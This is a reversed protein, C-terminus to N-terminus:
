SEVNAEQPALPLAGNTPTARKTSVAALTKQLREIDIPKTLHEDFGAQLCREVDEAMGYGTLAVAPTQCIQRAAKIFDIGTGDPLGIDSLLIDFESQKLMECATAVTACTEVEHGMQRLVNRMVQATDEHDEILLLRLGIRQERTSIETDADAAGQVPSDSTPLSVVFTSGQGPGKSEAHLTGGHAEVLAKAISLGLGLGRQKRDSAFDGQEFRQYLRAMVEEAMGAGDDRVSITLDTRHPNATAIEISGGPSTFKVANGIINLLIQQLRAPDAEVHSSKAELRSTLRLGKAQIEDRFLAAASQILGHADLLEKELSLKENEIRTIDLLDDILRAELEVNRRVRQLDPRLHPPLENAAEWASLTALVPTLPTRLEHSLTALFKDKAQSSAEVEAKAQILTREFTKHATFDRFILVVGRVTGDSERIPAGSDDIPLRSGDKRILLTHNALGAIAGSALVKDVPSEVPGGTEENVIRFVEACPRDEAEEATWGTLKEAVENLYTIRGRIDTIIVADGISALTVALIEKQRRTELSAVFHQRMEKHIRRYAWALFALNVLVAALFVLGRLRIASDAAQTAATRQSEETSVIESMTERISDMVEKGQDSRVIGMAASTKGSHLLGVTTRLEEIKRGILSELRDVQEAPILGTDAMKRVVDVKRQVTAIAEEYPELYSADRTLLYGRQGTEADQITSRLNQMAQIASDFLKVKATAELAVRGALYSAAISSVLLTAMLAFFLRVRRM